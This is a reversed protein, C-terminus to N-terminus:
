LIHPPRLDDPQASEIIETVINPGYDGSDHREVARWVEDLQAIRQNADDILALVSRTQEVAWPNGGFAPLRNAMQEIDDRRGIALRYQHLDNFSGGSMADLRRARVTDTLAIRPAAAAAAM